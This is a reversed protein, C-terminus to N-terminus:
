RLLSIVEIDPNKLVDLATSVYDKYEALLNSRLIFNVVIEYAMKRFPLNEIEVLTLADLLDKNINKDFFAVSSLEQLMKITSLTCYQEVNFAAFARDFQESEIDFLQLAYGLAEMSERESLNISIDEINDDKSLNILYQVAQLTHLQM